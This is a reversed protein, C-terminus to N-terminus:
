PESDSDSDGESAREPELKEREWHCLILSFTNKSSECRLFPLSLATHPIKNMSSFYSCSRLITQGTGSTSDDDSFFASQRGWVERFRGSVTADKSAVTEPRKM